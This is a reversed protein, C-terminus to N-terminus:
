FTTTKSYGTRTSHSVSKDVMSGGGPLNVVNNERASKQHVFGKGGDKDDFTRFSEHVQPGQASQDFGESTRPPSPIPFDNSREAPSLFGSFPWKFAPKQPEDLIEPFRLRYANRVSRQPFINESKPLQYDNYTEASWPDSQEFGLNSYDPQEYRFGNDFGNVYINYNKNTDLNRGTILVDRLVDGMQRQMDDSSEAMDELMMRKMHQAQHRTSKFLDKTEPDESAEQPVDSFRIGSFDRWNWSPPGPSVCVPDQIDKDGSVSYMMYFNCMEDDSTAGIRVTKQGENKMTCRAAIIDGRRIDLTSDKVPYFMQPKQPSRRGIETWKGERVRYGSVVKGLKHTHVRFAFPHLTVPEQFKCAAEMYTVSNPSIKGNAAVLYVGATKARPKDTTTLIVGSNDKETSPPLFKTVDKYHVQMVLYKIATDGGIKFAVDEPLKLAPADMAWAYIIRGGDKCVPGTKYEGGKTRHMEGCNWPKGSGGPEACGYILIHHAVSMSAKPKFGIVSTLDTVKKETCLYIDSQQPQVNPMLLELKESAAFTLPGVLLTLYVVGTCM